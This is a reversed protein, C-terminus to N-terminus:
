QTPPPYPPPYVMQLNPPYPAPPQQNPPYPLQQVPPLNTTDEADIRTPPGPYPPPADQPYNSVSQYSPPNFPINNKELNVTLPLNPDSIVATTSSTTGPDIVAQNNDRNYTVSNYTVRRAKCRKIFCGIAIIVMVAVFTIGLIMSLQARTAATEDRYKVFGIAFGRRPQSPQYWGKLEIEVKYYESSWTFPEPSSCITRRYANSKIVSKEGNLYLRNKYSCYGSASGDFETDMVNVQILEDKESKIDWECDYRYKPLNSKEYAKPWQPSTIVGFDNQVKTERKCVTTSTVPINGSILSYGAVFGTDKSSDKSSSHLHIKLCRANYAYVDHPLHGVLNNSCFRVLKELKRCDSDAKYVEIYDNGCSPMVGDVVFKSWTLKIYTTFFDGKIDWYCDRGRRYPALSSVTGESRTLTSGCTGQTDVKTISCLFHILLVGLLM